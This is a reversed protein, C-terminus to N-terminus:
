YPAWAMGFVRVIHAHVHGVQALLHFEIGGHGLMQPGLRADPVTEHRSCEYGNAKLFIFGYNDTANHVARSAHFQRLGFGTGGRQPRVSRFLTTYPFLTSRPPPGTM